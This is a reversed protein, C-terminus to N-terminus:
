PSFRSLKFSLKSIVRSLRSKVTGAPVSMKTAIDDVTMGDSFRLTLIKKDEEDLTSIAEKALELCHIDDIKKVPDVLSSDEIKLGDDIAEMFKHTRMHHRRNDIASTVAIKAVWASSHRDSTFDFKGSRIAKLIRLFADQTADDASSPDPGLVLSVYGHIYDVLIGAEPRAGAVAKELLKASIIPRTDSAM